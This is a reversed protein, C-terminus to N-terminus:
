DGFRAPATLAFLVLLIFALVIQMLLLAGYTLIAWEGLTALKLRRAREKSM